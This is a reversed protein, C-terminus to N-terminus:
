IFCMWIFIFMCNNPMMHFSLGFMMRNGDGCLSWKLSWNELHIQTLRNKKARFSTNNSNRRKNLLYTLLNITLASFYLDSPAATETLVSANEASPPITWTLDLHLLNDPLSNRLEMTSLNISETLIEERAM